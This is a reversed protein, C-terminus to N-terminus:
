ERNHNSRDRLLSRLLGIESLRLAASVADLMGTVDGVRAEAAARWFLCRVFERRVAIGVQGQCVSRIKRLLDKQFMLPDTRYHFMQHLLDRESSSLIPEAGLEQQALCLDEIMEDYLHKRAMIAMRQLYALRLDVMRGVNAGSDPVYTSLPLEQRLTKFFMQMYQLWKEPIQAADFRDGASGRAGEHNRHYITPGRVRAGRFMRALRVAMEYDQCRVLDIRFPGVQQYCSTRVLITPHILFCQEMLRILLENEPFDPLAQESHPVVRGSDGDTTSEIYSSYTWGVDPTNELVQLHRELADKLAVDDDDMIWVYDGTVRTMALNLASAKGSNKIELYEIYKLFPSLV